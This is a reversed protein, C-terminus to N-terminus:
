KHIKFTDSIKHIEDRRQHENKDHPRRFRWKFQGSLLAIVPLLLVVGRELVHERVHVYVVFVIGDRCEGDILILPM